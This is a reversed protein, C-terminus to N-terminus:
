ALQNQRWRTPLFESFHKDSHYRKFVSQQYTLSWVSMKENKQNLTIQIAIRTAWRMITNYWLIAITDNGYVSRGWQVRHVLPAQHIRGHLIMKPLKWSVKHIHGKRGSIFGKKLTTAEVAHSTPQLFETQNRSAQTGHRYSTATIPFSLTGFIIDFLM